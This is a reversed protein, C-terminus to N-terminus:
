RSSIARIPLPPRELGSRVASQLSNIVERPETRIRRPTFHLVFIGHATMKEHRAMTRAWDAPGLHWERSDVEAAVGAAPWWADPKALFESGVYLKANYMAEPLGSAKILRILDAEAASDAGAIVDELAARLAASGQRPGARLEAIM